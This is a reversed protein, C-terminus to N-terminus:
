TPIELTLGDHAPQIDSPLRAALDRHATEHSLHTLWTQRAGVARAVEVAEPISQHTPHPRWWLASMVLVEVGKLAALAEPTVAKVDTAYAVPGIRYGFVRTTGHDFGIPLVDLGHINVSVGETLVHTDLRPRSTGAPIVASEDFIYPFATRLHAIAAPPGHLPLPGDRRISFVRLDDIGNVHDAHEHTYLVADLRAVAANVLQLRLEPPTDILLTTGATEVLAATRTRRDHQDDSQCVPCRCGVQPVGFSTGTGLLTLRM